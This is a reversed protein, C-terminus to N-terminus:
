VLVEELPRRYSYPMKESYGLRILLMPEMGEKLNLHVALRKRVPVEECPMNMHAHHVGLATAQLMAREFSRGVNIWAKKDNRKAIFLMLGSSHLILGEYKNAEKEPSISLGMFIKGLWEPVSPNGSVKSSLGDGTKEAKSENFRIWHILEEVFDKNEFQSKAGEKVFPTISKIDEPENFVLVSVDEQQATKKIKEWDEQPIAKGDYENRTSQRIPISEFLGNESIQMGKELSVVIREEGPHELHFSVKTKWAFQRAAILLNELACGLSIFLAHDDADVVPLRRSYDPLIEVTHDIVRFKWPQTNHGSPAKIACELITKIETEMIISTKIDM